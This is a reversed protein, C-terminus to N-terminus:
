GLCDPLAKRLGGGGQWHSHEAKEYSCRDAKTWDREPYSRGDGWDFYPGWLCGKKEGIKQSAYYLADRGASRALRLM